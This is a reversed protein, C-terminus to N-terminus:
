KWTLRGTKAGDLEGSEANTEEALLREDRNENPKMSKTEPEVAGGLSERREGSDSVMASKADGCRRERREVTNNRRIIFSTEM